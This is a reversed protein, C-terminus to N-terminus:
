PDFEWIIAVWYHTDEAYCNGGACGGLGNRLDFGVGIRDGRAVQCNNADTANCPYYGWQDENLAFGNTHVQYLNGNRSMVIGRTRITPTSGSNNGVRVVVGVIRGNFPAVWQAEAETDFGPGGIPLGGNVQWDDCADGGASAVWLITNAPNGTWSQNHLKHYSVMTLGRWTPQGSVMTLVQGNTGPPIWVPPTNAGASRLLSGDTGAQNGPMFAGELRLNGNVHLRETPAAVGIGVNQACAWSSLCALLALKKQRWHM